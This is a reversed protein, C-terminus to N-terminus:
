PELLQRILTFTVIAMGLLLAFFILTRQEFIRGAARELARLIWDAFFYLGVGVVLLLALEM